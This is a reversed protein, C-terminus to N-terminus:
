HRPGPAGTIRTRPKPLEILEGFLGINYGKTRLAQLTENQVKKVKNIAEFNNPANKRIQNLKKNYNTYNKFLSNVETTIKKPKPKEPHIIKPSGRLGLEKDTEDQVYVIKASQGPKPREIGEPLEDKDIIDANKLKLDKPDDSIKFDNKSFDAWSGEFGYAEPVKEFSEDRVMLDQYAAESISHNLKKLEKYIEAQSFQLM